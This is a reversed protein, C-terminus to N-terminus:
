MKIENEFFIKLRMQKCICEELFKLKNQHCECCFCFCHKNVNITTFDGGTSGICKYASLFTLEIVNDVSSNCPYM